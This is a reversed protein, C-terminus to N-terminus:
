DKFRLMILLKKDPSVEFIVEKIFGKSLVWCLHAYVCVRECVCVCVCVSVTATMYSLNPKKM